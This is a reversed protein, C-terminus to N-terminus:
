AGSGGRARRPTRARRRKKAPNTAAVRVAERAWAALEEPDDLVDGPVEHYGGMPPKDEFPQFAPMGREAYRPRTADSVKFYLVDDVILAFFLDEHYLGFGGFMSRSTVPGLESLQDLVFDRYGETARM